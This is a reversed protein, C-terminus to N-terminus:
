AGSPRVGAEHMLYSQLALAQDASEILKELMVSLQEFERRSLCGFRVDNVQRQIPGHADLAARGKSTLWLSVRRRDISDTDKNVLGAKVLKGVTTTAFAGSVFLHDALMKVNVSGAEQLYGLTVLCTYEPGSLGLLAGHNGRIAEHRLTLVFMNHVLRRFGADSGDVLLEPRTTIARDPAHAGKRLPRAATAKALTMDHVATRSRRQM